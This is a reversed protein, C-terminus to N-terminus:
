SIDMVTVWVSRRRGRNIREADLDVSSANCHKALREIRGIFGICTNEAPNAIRM